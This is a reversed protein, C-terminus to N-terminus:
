ASTTPSWCGVQAMVPGRFRGFQCTASGCISWGVRPHVDGCSTPPAAHDDRFLGGLQGLLGSDCHPRCQPPWHWRFHSAIFSRGSRDGHVVRGSDRLVACRTTMPCLSRTHIMLPFWGSSIIPEQQQAICCCHGRLSCTPFLPFETLSLKSTNVCRRCSTLSSRIDWPHGWSKSAANERRQGGRWVRAREVALQARRELFDCAEPRVGARNWVKTKGAHVQIHAQGWLANELMTHVVGVRGPCCVIYIDDLFTFLMEEPRLQNQANHQGLAFLLPMMADGQEGGEGQDVEHVVGEDDEWWYQSPAGYFLKM